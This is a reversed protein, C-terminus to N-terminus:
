GRSSGDRRGDGKREELLEHTDYPYPTCREPAFSNRIIKQSVIEAPSDDVSLLSPPHASLRESEWSRTM